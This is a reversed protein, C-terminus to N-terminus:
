HSESVDSDVDSAVAPAHIVLVGDVDPEALASRLAQQFMAPTAEIPLRFISADLGASHLAATALTAPSRSNTVIRITAGQLIPQSSLVRATDLLAHVTPVEVVGAQQFIASGIAGDAASGTRVAVIPRRHSVRRAIRAFKAPNGFSETYMAIVRTQDDDEWFQLLDNSSVDSKDGLSVFWSLGLGIDRAQRLVAGGLSGSQLSIAVNGTPLAVNVLAAQMSDSSRLAAAGMSSPGIIRLGHRRSRAVLAEVDVSTGEPLVTDVDTVIIAGRMRKTICDDITADLAAPPVAVIALSVDDPVDSVSAYSRTGGVQEHNPNVAYASVSPNKTVHQWLAAGVSHQRDSAGIVAVAKPILLRAV